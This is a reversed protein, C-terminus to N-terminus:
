SIQIATMVTSNIGRAMLVYFLNGTLISTRNKPPKRVRTINMRIATRWPPNRALSEAPCAFRFIITSRSPWVLDQGLALVLKGHASRHYLILRQTSSTQLPVLWPTDATDIYPVTNYLSCALSSHWIVNHPEKHLHLLFILPPAIPQIGKPATRQHVANQALAAVPTCIVWIRDDVGSM